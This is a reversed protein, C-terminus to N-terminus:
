KAKEKVSQEELSALERRVFEVREKARGLELKLAEFEQRAALWDARAAELDAWAALDANSVRVAFNPKVAIASPTGKAPTM